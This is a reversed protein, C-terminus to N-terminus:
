IGRSRERAIEQLMRVRLRDYDPKSYFAEMRDCEEFQDCKGCFRIGKGECCERIECDKGKPYDKPLWCCRYGTRSNVLGGKDGALFRRYTDCEGCDAGCFRILRDSLSGRDSV